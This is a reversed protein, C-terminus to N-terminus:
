TEQTRNTLVERRLRECAQSILRSVHMQSVGLEDAISSQTREEFFRLYLILKDRQSLKHLGPKVAERDVVLDYAPDDEGLLDGMVVGDFDPNRTQKDLSLASFCQQASMGDRVEQESLGCYSAMEALTPADGGPEQAMEQRAKRVRNRAEQVRRPVHVCWTYDRFHRRLEGRITPVAFLAFAPSVAPDYRSIAKMLGLAAVQQLDELSEGRERYGRAIRHAMPLFAAAIEETLREREPGEPAGRLRRFAEVTDPSDDHRAYPPKVPATM